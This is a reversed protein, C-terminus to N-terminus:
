GQNVEIAALFPPVVGFLHLFSYFHRLLIKYIFAAFPILFITTKEHFVWHQSPMQGSISFNAVPFSNLTTRHKSLQVCLVLKPYNNWSFILINMVRTQRLFSIAFVRGNMERGRQKCMAFLPADHRSPLAFFLTVLRLYKTRLTILNDRKADDCELKLWHGIHHDGRHMDGTQHWAQCVHYTSMRHPRNLTCQPSPNLHKSIALRSTFM